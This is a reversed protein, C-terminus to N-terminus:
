NPLLAAFSLGAARAQTMCRRNQAEILIYRFRLIYDQSFETEREVRAGLRVPQIPM